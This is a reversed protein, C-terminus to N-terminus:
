SLVNQFLILSQLTIHLAYKYGNRDMRISESLDMIEPAIQSASNATALEEEETLTLDGEERCPSWNDKNEADKQLGDCDPDWM